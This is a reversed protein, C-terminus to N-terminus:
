NENSSALAVSILEQSAPSLHTFADVGGAANVLARTRPSELARVEERNATVLTGILKPNRNDLGKEPVVSEIVNLAVDLDGIRCYAEVASAWVNVDTGGWPEAALLRVTDNLRTRDGAHGCADLLTCQEAIQPVSGRALTEDWVAFTRDHMGARNYGAMRMGVIARASRGGSTLSVGVRAAHALVRDMGAVDGRRSYYDVFRSVTNTTVIVRHTEAMTRWYTLAGRVDDAALLRVIAPIHAMEDTFNGELPQEEQQDDLLALTAPHRPVRGVTVMEDFVRRAEDRGAVQITAKVAASAYMTTLPMGRDRHARMARAHVARVQAAGGMQAYVAVAVALLRSSPPSKNPYAAYIAAARPLDHANRYVSMHWATADASITSATMLSRHAVLAREALSPNAAGACRELVLELARPSLSRSSSTSANPRSNTAANAMAELAEVCARTDSQAGLYARNLVPDAFAHNLLGHGAAARMVKQIEAASAHTAVLALAAAGLLQVSWQDPPVTRFVELARSADGTRHYMNVRAMVVQPHDLGGNPSLTALLQDAAALSTRRQRKAVGSVMRAVLRPTLQSPPASLAWALGADVLHDWEPRQDDTVRPVAAISAAIREATPIAGSGRFASAPGIAHFAALAGSPSGSSVQDSLDSAATFEPPPGHRRRHDYHAARSSASYLIRPVTPRLVHGIGFSATAALLLRRLVMGM